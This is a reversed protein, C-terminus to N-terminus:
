RWDGQIAFAGWYYPPKWRAQRWMAIQAARLAAAPRSRNVLMQQYFMKMLESTAEDNIRWLSVAVHRAGAYMFGRTLGVLGEGSVDAGLGTECASLVVLDANLQLNYIEHLRLFGDQSDGRSNVLSLVLASLEPHDLNIRGHSAFHVYRYQNLAASMAIERNADFDYARMAQSRPVLGLITNGERRSFPLRQFGTECDRVYSALSLKRGQNKAHLQPKKSFADLRVRPDDKEYVADALVALTKPAPHRLKEEERLVAIMSASPVTVIEHDLILPPRSASSRTPVPLAAFSVFQLADSPVIVLRKKKLQNAVPQLLISSLEISEGIHFINVNTQKYSQQVLSKINEKRPLVFSHISVPTVAWLFGHESGFAYELLLTDSDLLKQIETTSLSHPQTLAAYRPSKSRIEAEITQYEGLVGDLEKKAAAAQQETHKGRLILQYRFSKGDILRQLSRERELLQEDVGQRIDARSETLLDLLSRAKSREAVELAKVDYGKSPQQQHMEMLLEIYFAFPLQETSFYSARLDPNIIKARTSEVINIATEIHACANQTEGLRREIRALEYFAAAEIRTDQVAQALEVAREESTHATGLEGLLAQLEGLNKLTMALWRRDNLDAFIKRAEELMSYARQKDGLAEYVEAANNLSMAVGSREPIARRLALAQSHYELARHNDGIQFYALGINSLAVSEQLRDGTARDLVLGQFYYDIARKRDGLLLYVSGLNVLTIAEGARDGVVRRLVLSQNLYDLAKQNDGVIRYLMGIGDLTNAEARRDGLAHKLALAQTLHVIADQMEGLDQYALGIDHLVHAEGRKDAAARTMALAQNYYELAERDDDLYYYAVGIESISEAELKQDGLRRRLMLAQNFLELAKVYQSQSESVTGLSQLANSQGRLDQEAAMASLARSLDDLAKENEGLANYVTGRGLLVLAEALRDDALTAITLARVLTDLAKQNEGLDSLVGALSVLAQISEQPRHAAQWLQVCKEYRVIADQLSENTDKRRLEDARQGQIQAEATPQDAPTASRLEVVDLNYNGPQAAPQRATLEFLYDGGHTAIVFVSRGGTTGDSTDVAAIPEDGPGKVTILVEIDPATIAVHLFQGTDLKISYRHTKGVQLGRKASHGQTINEAPQQPEENLFSAPQSAPMLQVSHAVQLLCLGSVVILVSRFVKAFVLM